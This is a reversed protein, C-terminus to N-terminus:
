KADIQLSIVVLMLLIYILCTETPSYGGVLKGIIGTTGLTVVAMFGIFRVVEKM